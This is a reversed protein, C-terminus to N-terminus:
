NGYHDGISQHLCTTTVPQTLSAVLWLAELTLVWTLVLVAVATLTQKSPLGLKPAWDTTLALM